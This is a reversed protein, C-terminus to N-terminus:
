PQGGKGAETHWFVRDQPGADLWRMILSRSISLADPLLLDGSAILGRLQERGYWCAAQLEDSIAIGITNSGVDFGMTRM